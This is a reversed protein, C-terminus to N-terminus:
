VVSKRDSPMDAFLSLRDAGYLFSLFFFFSFVISFRGLRRVPSLGADYLAQETVLERQKPVSIDKLRHFDERDGAEVRSNENPQTRPDGWRTSFGWPVSSSVFFFQNKWEHISSPLDTIFSLGKRPNFYWWGRAKPHPRFIFFARFLSIRPITPLLRCLLVFSVILRVSNPALQTSCLGYYDLM